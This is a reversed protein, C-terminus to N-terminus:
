DLLQRQHIKQLELITQHQELLELLRTQQWIPLSNGLQLATTIM